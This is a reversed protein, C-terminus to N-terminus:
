EGEELPIVFRYYVWRRDQDSGLSTEGLSWQSGPAKARAVLVAQDGDLLRSLDVFSQYRHASQAYAFGGMAEHFMMAMALRGVDTTNAELRAADEASAGGSQYTPELKTLSTKVTMPQLSDDITAVAGDALDPLRYAWNGHMLLCGELPVGTRNTVHGALLDDDLEELQADIPEILEASWRGLLTKTSWEQV